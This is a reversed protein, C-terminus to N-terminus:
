NKRLKLFLGDYKGPQFPAGNLMVLGTPVNTRGYALLGVYINQTQGNMVQYIRLMTSGTKKEVSIQMTYKSLEGEITAEGQDYGVLDPKEALQVTRPAPGAMQMSCPPGGNAGECFIGNTAASFTFSSAPAPAAMLSITLAYFLVKM